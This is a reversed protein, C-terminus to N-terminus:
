QRSLWIVYAAALLFGAAIVIWALKSLHSTKKSEDSM